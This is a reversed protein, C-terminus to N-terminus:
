ITSKLYKNKLFLLNIAFLLSFITTTKSAVLLLLRFFVEGIRFLKEDNLIMFGTRNLYDAKNLKLM